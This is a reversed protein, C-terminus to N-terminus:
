NKNKVEFINIVFQNKKDLVPLLLASLTDTKNIATVFNMINSTNDTTKVTIILEDKM